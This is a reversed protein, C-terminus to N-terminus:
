RASTVAAGGPVAAAGPARRAAVLLAAPILGLPFGSPVLVVAGLTVWAGLVWGTYGPMAVGAKALRAILLGLVLLPVGFSGLFGWFNLLTEQNAVDEVNSVGRLDGGLWNDWFATTRIGFVLMHVASIVVLLRGAWLSLRQAAPTAFGPM